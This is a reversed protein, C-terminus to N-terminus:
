PGKTAPAPTTSAASGSGSGAAPALGAAAAAGGIRSTLQGLMPGLFGKAMKWVRDLHANTMIAVVHADAGEATMDAKAAMGGRAMATIQSGMGAVFESASQPSPTTIRLDMAVGTPGVDVASRLSSIQLDGIFAAAMAMGGALRSGDVVNWVAVDTNVQAMRSTFDAVGMLGGGASSSAMAELVSKDIVLGDGGAFLATSDDIYVMGFGRGDSTGWAYVGDITISGGRAAIPAKAKELCAMMATKTVGTLSGQARDEGKAAVIANRLTTAPDIGCEAKIDIPLRSGGYKSVADRLAPLQLLKEFNIGMVVDADAPMAALTRAIVPDITGSAPAIPAMTPPKAGAGPTPAAVLASGSGAAPAPKPASKKCGATSLGLSVALAAALASSITVHRTAIM